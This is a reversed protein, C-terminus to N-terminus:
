FKYSLRPGIFWKFQKTKSITMSAQTDKSAYLPAAFEYGRKVRALRMRYPETEEKDDYDFSFVALTNEQRTTRSFNKKRIDCDVSGCANLIILLSLCLPLRWMSRKPSQAPEKAVASDSCAMYANHADNM